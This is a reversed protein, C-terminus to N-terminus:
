YVFGGPRWSLPTVLEDDEGTNEKKPKQRNETQAAPVNNKPPAKKVVATDATKTKTGPDCSMAHKKDGCIGYSYIFMAVLLCFINKMYMSILKSHYIYNNRKENEVPQL